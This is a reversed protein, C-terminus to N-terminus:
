YPQDEVFNKLMYLAFEGQDSPVMHGADYVRLFTLKDMKKYEGHKKNQYMVTQYSQGKYGKQGYWNLSDALIEGGRWNCIYDKDGYYLMIRMGSNLAFAIDNAVPTCWDGMMNQYVTWNCMENIVRYHVGFTEQSETSNLLEAVKLMLDDDTDNRRIDYYNKIDATQAVAGIISICFMDFIRLDYAMAVRCIGTLAKLLFYSIHGIRGEERVFDPYLQLQVGVDSLGNGIAAAKLNILPNKVRIIHAVIAPIYHGAYSEGTIYLPVGAYEPHHYQLFNNLFKHFNGAVCTENRCYHANDKVSAYITAVPQDIFMIDYYANWSYPNYNLKGTKDM